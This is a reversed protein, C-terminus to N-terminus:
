RKRIVSTSQRYSLFGRVLGSALAMSTTSSIEISSASPLDGMGERGWWISLIGTDLAPEARPVPPIDVLITAARRAVEAPTVVTIVREELGPFMALMTWYMWDRLVVGVAVVGCGDEGGEPLVVEAVVSTLSGRERGVAMKFSSGTSIAGNCVRKM